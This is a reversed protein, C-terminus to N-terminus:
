FVKFFIVIIINARIIEILFTENIGTWWNVSHNVSEKTELGINKKTWREYRFLRMRQNKIISSM